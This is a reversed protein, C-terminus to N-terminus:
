DDLLFEFRGIVANWSLADLVKGMYVRGDLEVAWEKRDRIFYIHGFDSRYPIADPDHWAFGTWHLELFEINSLDCHQMTLLEVTEGNPLQLGTLYFEDIKFLYDDLRAKIVIDGTESVTGDKTVEAGNMTLDIYIPRPFFYLLLLILVIAIVALIAIGLPTLRNPHVTRIGEYRNQTEM